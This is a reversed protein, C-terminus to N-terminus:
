DWKDGSKALSPSRIEVREVLNQKYAFAALRNTGDSDRIRNLRAWSIQMQIVRTGFRVSKQDAVRIEDVIMQRWPM